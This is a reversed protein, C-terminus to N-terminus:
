VALVNFLRGKSELLQNETQIAKLRNEILKSERSNILFLSSEGAQFKTEEGQLLIAYDSVIENTIDLQIQYSSIENLVAAIKNQLALELASIEYGLAEIKLNALKLDAREKRLFLPAQIMVGFKYDNASLYNGDSLNENLANYRLDVTPLISNRKLRREIEAGQLKYGFSQIKPHNSVEFLESNFQNLELVQDIRSLLLYEPVVSEKLEVPVDNLWLFNSVELSTKLLNLKSKEFNLNRNNLIIKAETSDIAPKEGLEINQLIGEFREEANEIFEEFVELEKYARLWSFYASSANYLIENVLIQNDVDAQKLYFKAEKLTALREYIWLGEGVSVTVGLNFLGDTPVTAEPNLFIGSNNEYGGKFEVGYWTPVKFSVDTREFYEQDKFQKEDLNFELKPDFAGKSKLLKIESESLILNAQKVIPHHKKVMGLFEDFTLVGTEQSKLSTSLILLSIILFVLRM